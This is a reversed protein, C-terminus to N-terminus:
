MGMMMAEEPDMMPPGSSKPPVLPLNILLTADKKSFLCQVGDKEEDMVKAPLRIQLSYLGKVSLDFEIGDVIDLEIQGASTIGDLNVVMQLLGEEKSLNWTPEKASAMMGGHVLPRQTGM